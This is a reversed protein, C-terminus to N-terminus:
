AICRPPPVEPALDLGWVAAKPLMDLAQWCWLIPAGGVRTPGIKLVSLVWPASQGAHMVCHSELESGSSATCCCDGEERGCGCPCVVPECDMASRCAPVVSPTATVAILSLVVLRM